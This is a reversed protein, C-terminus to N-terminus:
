LDALLEDARRRLLDPALWRVVRLAFEVMQEHGVIRERHTGYVVTSGETMLSLFQVIERITGPDVSPHDRQLASAIRDLVEDYLDDVADRVVRDHLSMAWLERFLRVTDEAVADAMFWRIVAELHPGQRLLTQMRESYRAVLRSIMARVLKVKTPFHYTLNGPTM